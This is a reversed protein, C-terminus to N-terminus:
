NGSYSYLHIGNSHWVLVLSRSVASTFVALMAPLAYMYRKNIHIDDLLWSAANLLVKM